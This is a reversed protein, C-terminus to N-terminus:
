AHALRGTTGHDKVRMSRVPRYIIGTLFSESLLMCYELEDLWTYKCGGPVLDPCFREEWEDCACILPVQLM